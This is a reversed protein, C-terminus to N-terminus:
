ATYPTPLLSRVRILLETLDFPKRLYDSAGVHFAALVDRSSQNASVMLIPIHQARSARIEQCVAYGDVDPLRLDLLILDPSTTNTTQLAQAGSDACIVRYGEGELTDRLLAQVAADDEIVLITPTSPLSQPPTSPRTYFANM